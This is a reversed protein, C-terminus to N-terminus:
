QYIRRVAKKFQIVKSLKIHKQLNIIELNFLLNKFLVRFADEPTESVELRFKAIVKKVNVKM